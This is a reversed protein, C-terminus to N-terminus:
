NVPKEQKKLIMKVYDELDTEHNLDDATDFVKDPGASRIIFDDGDVIEFRVPVQYYDLKNQVMKTGEELTLARGKLAAEADIASAIEALSALNISSEMGNQILERNQYFFSGVALGVTLQIIAIILGAVALGRPKKFVAIACVIMAVPALCGGCSLLSLVFGILGATNGSPAVELAPTVEIEDNM